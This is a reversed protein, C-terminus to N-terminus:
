PRIGTVLFASAMILGRWDEPQEMALAARRFLDPAHKEVMPPLPHFHYFLTRVGVLGAARMMEALVIPNHTRSLVEDYGPEDEHGGRVPPLDTRFMGQMDDLALELGVREDPRAQARLCEVDVLEHRFLDHSYRNMTFLGFLQNRAELVVLGGPTVADRLNAIVTEDAEAPVHPLVGSCIVAGFRQDPEAPCGFAQPDLVSGEWLRREPVGHPAMARRAADIMEPTLDFGYLKAGLDTLGRLFSAPGCGADLITTPSHEKLVGHVLTEHIPPYAADVGYYEDYYRDGWTSYCRKVQAEVKSQSM